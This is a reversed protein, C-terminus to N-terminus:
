GGTAAAPYFWVVTPHGILDPKSREAGDSNWATFDPAGLAEDPQTGHLAETDTDTDTDGDTDADTDGDTDGDTDTDSDGDADGDSSGDDDDCAVTGGSAALLAMMLVLRMRM